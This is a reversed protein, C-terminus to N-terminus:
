QKSKLEAPWNIVLAAPTITQNGAPILVLLRGDPAVSVESVGGNPASYIKKPVGAKFGGKNELPVATVGGGADIYYLTKGDPSWASFRAGTGGTLGQNSIQWKQGPEPFGTVYLEPKGSENSSYTLLKGDPSLVGANEVAPTQIIPALKHEGAASLTEVDQGTKPNQVTMILTQGDATWQSPFKSIQDPAILQESVNGQLSITKVEFGNALSATISKGDASWVGLIVGEPNFSARSLSGRQSDVIWLDRRVGPQVRTVLIQHGDPSISPGSYYDPEGLKSAEGGNHDLWAMQYKPSYDPRYVLGGTQSVSFNGLSKGISFEVQGAVPVPVGKVVQHDPDFPQAVLNGDTVYVIYGSSYVANSKAQVIVHSDTSDLSGVGVGEDTTFLFHKGDPLFTPWRHSQLGASQKTATAAAPTGGSDPIKFLPEKLGPTFVIVGSQNWTGGRGAMADCLVQVVGGTAPVRKLKGDAFFALNRGDGSWFPYTAGDTGQLPQTAGSSLMRVFILQKRQGEAVFAVASGDPSLAFQNDKGISGFEFGEPPIMEAHIVPMPQSAKRAYFLSGAIGVAAVLGLVVLLVKWVRDRSKRQAVVPAPVGALSGAGSIWILERKLDGASQWRDDPDKSLCTTVIRELAPLSMPQLESIPRPEEKIIAAILTAQSKAPFAKQGTAMEYVTAGFSFIDSRADAEGGELQEPSMYQLTGVITGQVTLQNGRASGAMPQTVTPSSSMDTVAPAAGKALGFDLLKAGAKTLMVNGPKLDRHIVGQRHARELAECIQIGVRLLEPTPMPGQEIRKALTQGELYEMVLYDTSDQRGIDYLACINPHNLSSVARAEREFRQRVEPADALHLPLIKLAVTRDLRTDRASYVEGMGGAGIPAIVEYPGLRTGRTLAM